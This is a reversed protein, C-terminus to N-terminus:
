CSTFVHVFITSVLTVAGLFVTQEALSSGLKRASVLMGDVLTATFEAEHLRHLPSLVLDFEGLLSDAGLATGGCSETAYAVLETEV